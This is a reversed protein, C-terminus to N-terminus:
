SQPLIDMGMWNALIKVTHPESGPKSPGRISLNIRCVGSIIFAIITNIVPAAIKANKVTELIIRFLILKFYGLQFFTLVINGRASLM